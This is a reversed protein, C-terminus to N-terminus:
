KVGKVIGDRELKKVWMTIITKRLNHREAFSIGGFDYGPSSLCNYWDAYDFGIRQEKGAPYGPVEILEEVEFSKKFDEWLVGTLDLTLIFSVFRWMQKRKFWFAFKLLKIVPEYKEMPNGSIRERLALIRTLRELEKVPNKVLSDKDIAMLIDQFRYRYANDYEVISCAILLLELWIEKEKGAFHATIFQEGKFYIERCMTSMRKSELYWLDFTYHSNEIFMEATKYFMMKRIGKPILFLLPLFYRFPPSTLLGIPKMFWKKMIGVLHVAPGAPFGKTPYVFTKYFSLMGGEEPCYIGRGEKALPHIDGERDFYELPLEHGGIKKKFDSPSQYTKKLYVSTPIEVKVQSVTGSM